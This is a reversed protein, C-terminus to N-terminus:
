SPSAPAHRRWPAMSRASSVRRTFSSIEGCRRRHDRPRGPIAAGRVGARDRARESSADRSRRAGRGDGIARPRGRTRPRTRVADRADDRSSLTKRRLARGRARLRRRRRAPRTALSRRDRTRAPRVDEVVCPRARRTMANRRAADRKDARRGGRGARRRHNARFSSARRNRVVRGERASRFRSVRGGGSEEEIGDPAVGARAAHLRPKLWAPRLFLRRMARSFFAFAM